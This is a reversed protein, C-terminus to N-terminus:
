GGKIVVTSEEMRHDSRTERNNSWVGRVATDAKASVIEVLGYRDDSEFMGRIVGVHFM